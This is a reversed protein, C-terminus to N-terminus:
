TWIYIPTSIHETPGGDIKFYYVTVVNKEGREGECRGGFHVHENMMILRFVLIYKYTNVKYKYKYEYRM